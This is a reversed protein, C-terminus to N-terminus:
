RGARAAPRLRAVFGGGPALRVALTDGAAVARTRVTRDAAFRDANPGDAVLTAEWRGGGLFDLPLAYARPTWDTLAGIWWSDGHRRAVAIEDGLRARLVRTEDWTTPVAALVRTFATDARYDSVSAALYQLASEYVVYQALQQTRTGQNMPREFVVRFDKRTGNTMSGGEFDMPGAAMRIFPITVAHDPTVRESWMDFEHGLVAERTLLNPWAREMGTPKAVGHFNVVLRRRAAERAVREQFRLMPQDDRDMFDVMIGKVGWGAYRDLLADMRGELGLASHWLIIGVGRRTAHAVLGPVDIDPNLTTPDEADSWGADFMMYELGWEAAFDILHRYTATNLGAVFDVGHLLRSTIWEETSKGPRVWSFDGQEPRALRWVLDSEVLRAEDPAVIAVRWPFTRRGATRAVHPARQTVLRQRFEAGGLTDALPLRALAGTLAPEGAPEGAARRVWLGPYDWLDSETVLVVGAATRVLAPLYALSDPEVAAVPLARYTEEHSAHFCDADKRCGVHAIWATDGPAFRFRVREDRVTLSDDVATEWRWAVGDDAARVVLALTPGLALRLERYRDPVRSRKLPLRPVLM